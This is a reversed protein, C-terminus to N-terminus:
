DEEEDEADAAFPKLQLKGEKDKILLEVKKEVETLKENCLKVLGVGKEFAALSDELSLDGSELQEVVQELEELAAEFKKSQQDKKAM